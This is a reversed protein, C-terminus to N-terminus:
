LKNHIPSHIEMKGGLVEEFSVNKEIKGGIKWSHDEVVTQTYYKALSASTLLAM